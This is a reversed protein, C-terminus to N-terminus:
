SRSLCQQYLQVYRDTQLEISYETKAIHRCNKSLVERKNTDELLEIIKQTFELINEPQALEGTVGSRVLEPVGGVHFSILPTGCAMSEQLVLPLNDARTPFLFLDAASYAISKLRDGSIYGLSLVTIDIHSQFQEGGDGFTLLILDQKLSQPINQLSKLLLDGGKRPDSLSQAGFLLIKKNLPLDLVQRCIDPDLPQYEQINIGNPIHHIPFCNLISQEAQETLWQSPCVIALNSHQYVWKKLKWELATSDRKIKPYTEPYPCQGCGTKWKQCDFSYACHGTFSWMDHLTFVASKSQTLKAMALYNFYGGHLNHFNLIDANKYISQKLIQFSNFVFIYNLGFSDSFRSILDETVRKRDLTLVHDSNIKQQDVLLKSDINRNILSQHLRYGAISAGGSIDSQNIHLIKM